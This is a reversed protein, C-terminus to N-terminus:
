YRGSTCILNKGCLVRNQKLPSLFFFFPCYAFGLAICIFYLTKNVIVYQYQKM